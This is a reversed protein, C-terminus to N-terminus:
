YDTREELPEAPSEESITKEIAEISGKTEIKSEVNEKTIAGKDENIEEGNEAWPM